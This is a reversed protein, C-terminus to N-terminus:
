LTRIGAEGGTLQEVWQHKGGRWEDDGINRWSESPGPRFGSASDGHRASGSEPAHVAPDDHTGQARRTGSDSAGAGRADRQMVLFTEEHRLVTHKVALVIEDFSVDYPPEVVIVAGAWAAIVDAPYHQATLGRVSRGHIELFTRAEDDHMPRVVVSM